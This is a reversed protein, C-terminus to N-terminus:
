LGSSSSLQAGQNGPGGPTSLFPKSSKHKKVRITVPMSDPHSNPNSNGSQNLTNNGHSPSLSSVTNVIAPGGNKKYMYGGSSMGGNSSTPSTTNGGMSIPSTPQTNIM